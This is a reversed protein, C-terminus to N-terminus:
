PNLSTIFASNEPVDFDYFLTIKQPHAKCYGRYSCQKLTYDPRLLSQRLRLRNPSIYIEKCSIDINEKIYHAMYSVQTTNTLLISFHLSCSVIENYVIYRLQVLIYRETLYPQIKMSNVKEDSDMKRLMLFAIENKKSPTKTEEPKTENTSTKPLSTTNNTNSEDKAAAKDFINKERQAEEGMDILKGFIKKGFINKDTKKSKFDWKKISSVRKLLPESTTRKTLRTMGTQNEEDVSSIRKVTPRLPMVQEMLKGVKSMRVNLTRKRAFQWNTASIGIAEKNFGKEKLKESSESFSAQKLGKFHNVTPPKMKSQSTSFSSKKTFFLKPARAVSTTPGDHKNDQSAKKKLVAKFRFKTDPKKTHEKSFVETWQNKTTPAKMEPFKLLKQFASLPAKPTEVPTTKGFGCINCVLLKKPPLCKLIDELSILSAKLTSLMIVLAYLELVRFPSDLDIQYSFLAHDM